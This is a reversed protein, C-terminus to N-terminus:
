RRESGSGLPNHKCADGGVAAEKWPASASISRGPLDHLYWLYKLYYFLIAKPTRAEYVRCPIPASYHLRFVVLLNDAPAWTTVLSRWFHWITILNLEPEIAVACTSLNQETNCLAM